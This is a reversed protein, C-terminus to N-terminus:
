HEDRTPPRVHTRHQGEKAGFASFNERAQSLTLSGNPGGWYEEAHPDDQGDDAWCCVPCIEYAAQEMLTLYRCCPCRFQALPKERRAQESAFAYPDEIWGPVRYPVGSESFSMKPLPSTEITGDRRFATREVGELRGASLIAGWSHPGDRPPYAVDFLAPPFYIEGHLLKRGEALLDVLESRENKDLEKWGALREVWPARAGRGNTVITFSFARDDDSLIVGRKRLIPVVDGSPAVEDRWEASDKAVLACLNPDLRPDIAADRMWAFIDLGDDTTPFYRFM